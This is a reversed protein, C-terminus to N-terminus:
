IAESIMQGIEEDAASISAVQAIQEKSEVDVSLEKISAVATEVAAEIGKKLSMPNAGAAVNRLGEHVMAWALVTATTTGDGAVDDTKKAVEKVLDAGIKEYHDPRGVEQRARRQSGQPRPDGPGRRGAPEHWERPRAAGARRVRHDQANTTAIRRTQRFRDAEAPKSQRLAEYGRVM